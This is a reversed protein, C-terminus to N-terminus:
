QAPAVMAHKPAPNSPSPAVREASNGNMLRQVASVGNKAGRTVDIKTNTMSPPRQGYELNSPYRHKPTSVLRSNGDDPTLVTSPHQAYFNPNPTNPHQEVLVRDQRLMRSAVDGQIAQGEQAVASAKTRPYMSEPVVPMQMKWQADGLHPTHRFEKIPYLSMTGHPVSYFGGLRLRRETEAHAFADAEPYSKSELVPAPARMHVGTKQPAGILMRPQVTSLSKAVLPPAAASPALAQRSAAEAVAKDIVTEQVGTPRNVKSNSFM